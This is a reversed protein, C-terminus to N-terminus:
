LLLLATINEQGVTGSNGDVAGGLGAKAAPGFPTGAEAYLGGATRSNGGATVFVFNYEYDYGDM